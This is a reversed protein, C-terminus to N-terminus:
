TNLDVNINLPYLGTEDFIFVLGNVYFVCEYQIASLSLCTEKSRTLRDILNIQHLESSFLRNILPTNSHFETKIDKLLLINEEFLGILAPTSVISNKIFNKHRESQILSRKELAMNKKILTM